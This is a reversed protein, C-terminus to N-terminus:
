KFYAVVDKWSGLVIQGEDDEEYSVNYLESKGNLDSHSYGLKPTITFIVDHTELDCIRFDDYLHGCVPCNNKFFVYTLQPNFKKSKENAKCITHLKTLLAKTKNVLSTDRCFWDYWLEKTLSKIIEPNGTNKYEIFDVLIESIPREEM